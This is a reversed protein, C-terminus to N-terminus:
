KQRVASSEGTTFVDVNRAATTVIATTGARTETPQLLFSSSAGAGLAAVGAGGGGGAVGGGAAVGSAGFATAATAFGVAFVSPPAFAAAVTAAAPSAPLTAIGVMGARGVIAADDIGPTALAIKFPAM